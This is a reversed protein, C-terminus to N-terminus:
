QYGQLYRELLREREENLPAHYLFALAVSRKIGQTGNEMRAWSARNYGVFAAAKNQSWGLARRADSLQKGNMKEM